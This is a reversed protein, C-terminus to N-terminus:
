GSASAGERNSGNGGDSAGQGSSSRIPVLVNESGLAHRLVLKLTNRVAATLAPDSKMMDQIRLGRILAIVATMAVERQERRLGTGDFLVDAAEVYAGFIKSVSADLHVALQEEGRAAIMMDITVSVFEEAFSEAWIGEVFADVDLEGRALKECLARTVGISSRWMERTADIVLETKNAYHHMLAGRSVGARKSINITTTNVYGIEAILEITAKRLKAITKGRREEQKQREAKVLVGRGEHDSM